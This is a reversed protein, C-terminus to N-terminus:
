DRRLTMGNGVYPCTPNIGFPYYSQAQPKLGLFV